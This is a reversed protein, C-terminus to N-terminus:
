RYTGPVKKPIPFAPTNWAGKGSELKGQLICDGVLQDLADRREGHLHFPPVSVPKADPQLWIEGEGYPGRVPPNVPYKGSLSSDGFEALLAEQLEHALEALPDDLPREVVGVACIRKEAADIRKAVEWLVEDDEDEGEEDQFDVEPCARLRM